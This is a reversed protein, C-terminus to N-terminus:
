LTVIDLIVCVFVFKFRVTASLRQLMIELSYVFSYATVVYPFNQAHWRYGCIYTPIVQARPLPVAVGHDGGGQPVLLGQVM